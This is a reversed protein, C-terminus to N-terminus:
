KQLLSKARGKSTSLLLNAGVILACAIIIETSPLDKWLVFGVGMSFPLSLYKLLSISTLTQIRLGYTYLFSAILHIFAMLAFLGIEKLDPRLASLDVFFLSILICCISYYFIISVTTETPAMKKFTLIALAMCFTSGVGFLGALSFVDSGPQFAFFIGAACTLLAWVYKQSVHEKLIFFGLGSIFLPGTFSIAKYSFLQLGSLAKISFLFSLASFFARLSHLQLNKTKLGKGKTTLLAVILVFLCLFVSRVLLIEYASYIKSSFKVLADTSVFLFLGAVMSFISSINRKEISM